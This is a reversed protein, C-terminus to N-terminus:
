GKTSQIGNTTSTTGIADQSNNCKKTTQFLIQLKSTIM